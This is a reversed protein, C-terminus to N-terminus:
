PMPVIFLTNLRMWWKRYLYSRLKTTMEGRGPDYMPKKESCIKVGITLNPVGMSIKISIFKRTNFYFYLEAGFFRQKPWV